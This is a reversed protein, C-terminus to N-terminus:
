DAIYLLRKNVFEDMGLPGLERGFGSRKVGGFPLEAREAAPINVNTMGVDLQEAVKRARDPDTSFVAGGLGYPTDNALTLAEQDNSVKYIVAVPGFLEEHYARMDPTVGTLVTPSFYAAPGDALLGGAHLTAGKDIADKVQEALAEAAARSSLPGYTGDEDKQPDGPQLDKALAALESVFADYIDEMVIIRKNSNCAQGTNEMRTEWATAAATKIDATDLLVYPDSGGLELVSKKLSKGALAGIVAGARESGTLSVGQIRPDAILDAIQAYSAFVNVYAGHPLGADDMIKQIALASRPCMEAHKLVITNGMMLNPAAFRAVQYYPYNWPMIGLLVGVPRKQVVARGGSYSTIEQDAALRPGEFAFYNFIQICFDIEGKSQSLPKGMEETIIAALEDAREAFLEAVRLVKEAREQIPVNKWAQFATDASGISRNIEDQTATPFEEGVEGTAPNLVRYAPQIANSPITTQSM